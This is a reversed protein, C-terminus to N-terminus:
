GTVAAIARCVPGVNEATLGAVNVRGSGVVYLAFEERLRSVRDEGLPLLSFMGRQRMLAEHDGVAGAEQLGRVFARRNANIRGRMVGVEDVWRARLEPDSLITAVIEGGHAPPNSYNARIVSKAHSLLTM